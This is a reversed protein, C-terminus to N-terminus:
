KTNLEEALARPLLGELYCELLSTVAAVRDHSVFVATAKTVLVKPSVQMLLPVLREFAQTLDGKRKHNQYVRYLPTLSLMGYAGHADHWHSKQLLSFVWRLGDADEEYYFMARQVCMLIGPEGKHKSSLFRVGFERCLNQLGIAVDDGGTARAKLMDTSTLRTRNENQASFVLAEKQVSLGTLIQCPLATKGILRAAEFRNGGDIIAFTATDQRYSVLLFGCKNDDWESAIKRVKRQAPRQYSLDVFLMSMPLFGVRVGGFEKANALLTEALSRDPTIENAAKADTLIVPTFATTNMTNTM